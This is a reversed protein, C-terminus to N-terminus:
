KSHAHTSSLTQPLFFRKQKCGLGREHEDRKVGDQRSCFLQVLLLLPGAQREAWDADHCRRGLMSCRCLCDREYIGTPSSHADVAAAHQGHRLKARLRMGTRCAHLVANTCLM